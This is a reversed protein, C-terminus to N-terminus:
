KSEKEENKSDELGQIYGQMYNDRMTAQVNDWTKPFLSVCIFEFSLMYKEWDDILPNDKKLKAIMREIRAVSTVNKNDM